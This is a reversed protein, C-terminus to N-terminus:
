SIMINCIANHVLINQGLVNTEEGKREELTKM